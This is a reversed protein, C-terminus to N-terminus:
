SGDEGEPESVDVKAGREIPEFLGLGCSSGIGGGGGQHIVTIIDTNCLRELSTAYSFGSEFKLGFCRQSLRNVYDQGGRMRFVITSDDPFETQRIKIIPICTRGAAEAGAPEAAPKDAALAGTVLPVVFLASLFGPFGMVDRM